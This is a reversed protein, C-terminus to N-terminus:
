FRKYIGGGIQVRDGGRIFTLNRLVPIHYHFSVLVMKLIITNNKIHKGTPIRVNKETTGDILITTTVTKETSVGKSSCEEGGLGTYLPCM